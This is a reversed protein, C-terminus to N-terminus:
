SCPSVSEGLWSLLSRPMAEAVRPGVGYRWRRTAIKASQVWGHLPADCAREVAEDLVREGAVDAAQVGDLPPEADSIPPNAEGEIVLPAHDDHQAYQWASPRVVASREAPAAIGGRNGASPRSFGM